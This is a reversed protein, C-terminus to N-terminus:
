ALAAARSRRSPKSQNAVPRVKGSAALGITALRRLAEPRSLSEGNDSIWSDILELFPAQARVLLPHGRTKSRIHRAFTITMRNTIDWGGRFALEQQTYAAQRQTHRLLPSLPRLYKDCNVSCSGGWALRLMKALKPKYGVLYVNRAAASSKV